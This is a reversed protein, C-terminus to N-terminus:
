SSSVVGSVRSNARGDTKAAVNGSAEASCTHAPV